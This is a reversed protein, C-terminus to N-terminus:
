RGAKLRGALRANQRELAAGDVRAINKKQNRDSV